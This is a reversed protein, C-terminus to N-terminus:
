PIMEFPHEISGDENPDIITSYGPGSDNFTDDDVLFLPDLIAEVITCDVIRPDSSSNLSLAAGNHNIITCNSIFPSSVSATFSHCLLRLTFEELFQFVGINELSV